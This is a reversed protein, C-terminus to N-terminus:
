FGPRAGHSRGPLSTERPGFLEGGHVARVKLSDLFVLYVYGRENTVRLHDTELDMRTIYCDQVDAELQPDYQVAYVQRLWLLRGTKLDTARVVGMKLGHPVSYEIGGDEIPPVPRPAARKALAPAAALAMLLLPVSLFRHV